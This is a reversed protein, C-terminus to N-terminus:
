PNTTVTVVGPVDEVHGLSVLTRGSVTDFIELTPILKCAPPTPTAGAATPPPPFPPIMITARIERRDGAVILKLDTDSRLDFAASTGPVVNVTTTKLVTGDGAVFSVAASCIVGLAPPQVGPNLLNLQATQADAIGIMGTTQLTGGVPITQGSLAMATIALVCTLRAYYLM